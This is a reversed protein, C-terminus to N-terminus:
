QEPQMKAVSGAADLQKLCAAPPKPEHVSDAQFHSLTITKPSLVSRICMSVPHM